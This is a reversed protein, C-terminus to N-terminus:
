KFSRGVMKKADKYTVVQHKAGDINNTPRDIYKMDDEASKKNKRPPTGQIYHYTGTKPHQTVVIYDDDSYESTEVPEEDEADRKKKFKDFIGEELEKESEKESEKNKRNKYDEIDQKLEKIDEVTCTNLVKDNGNLLAKLVAKNEVYEAADYLADGAKEPLLDSILEAFSRVVTAGDAGLRTSLKKISDTIKGELLAESVVEEDDEIEIEDEDVIEEDEYPVVIGAIKFGEAADCYACSDDVNALDTAEDVQVETETKIIIAGCKVCELAIQKPAEDEAPVEVAVDDPMEAAPIAPEEAELATEEIDNEIDSEYLSDLEEMISLFDKM